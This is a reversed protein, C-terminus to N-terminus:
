MHRARASNSVYPAYHLYGTSDNFIRLRENAVGIWALHGQAFSTHDALGLPYQAEDGPLYADSPPPSRRAIDYNRIIHHLYTGGERGINQMRHIEDARVLKTALQAPPLDGKTYVIVRTEKGAMGPVALMEEIMSNFEAIPEDYYAFVFDVTTRRRIAGRPFQDLLRPPLSFSSLLAVLAPGLSAVLVLTRRRSSVSSSAAAHGGKEDDLSTYSSPPSSEPDGAVAASWRAPVLRPDARELLVSAAAFATILALAMRDPLVTRSASSAFLTTLLAQPVLLTAISVPHAVVEIAHVLAYLELGQAVTLAGALTKVGTPLLTSFGTDARRHAILFGLSAFM